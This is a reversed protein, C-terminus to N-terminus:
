GTGWPAEGHPEYWDESPGDDFFPGRGLDPSYIDPVGTDDKECPACLGLDGVRCVKGCNECNQRM